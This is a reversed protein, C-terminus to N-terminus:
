YEFVVAQHCQVRPMIVKVSDESLELPLADGSPVLYANEVTQPVRVELPVHYLPVLDEIVLCRGRQLPPGYLLHAVYRRKNPQHLLSLRGASPMETRAMPNTYILGLANAFLDRHSRAGLEYYLKGLSHPLFIVSGKRLAGPHAADKPRYPTNLHSCFKAYTRSFYPERIAALIETGEKPQVRIAAEYNLFPSCVLGHGLEQGVVLYDVDYRAPGLYTAGVDLLFRSETRDLASKGLVLLGGGDRAFAGLREAQEETLCASGTLVITDYQALDAETDVVCFDTLTELLMRTTGEDDAESGTRWLGLNSVPYGGPGYEEIQKVYEFAVGINRYTDMDM